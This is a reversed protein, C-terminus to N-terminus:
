LLKQVAELAAEYDPEETLEHVLERYRIVGERDIVWVSRALLRLEKILLGFAYAFSRNVYDSFIKVRGVKFAECFRKQAFPLDLSITLIEVEALRSAEENFRRTQLQCVETDLSPVSSLICVKGKFDSLQHPKLEFDVVTFDPAKEGVEPRWGLLTLPNGQFTIRVPEPQKELVDWVWSMAAATRSFGIQNVLLMVAEETEEPSAGFRLAKRTHSHVGGESGLTAAASLKLLEIEKRNFNTNQRLKEGLEELSRIIEPFRQKLREYIKPYGM